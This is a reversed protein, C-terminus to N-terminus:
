TCVETKKMQWVRKSSSGTRISFPFSSCFFFFFFFFFFLSVEPIICPVPVLGPLICPVPVLGPLICPVPVLGPIYLVRYLFWVLHYSFWVEPHLFWHRPRQLTKDRSNMKYHWDLHSSYNQTSRDRFRLGCTACPDGMYMLHVLSSYPRPFIADFSSSPLTYCLYQIGPLMRANNPM